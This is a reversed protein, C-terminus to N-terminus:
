RGFASEGTVAQGVVLLHIDNTGEYTYVTELNAMHRMVPYENMIGNAGLIDRSLRATELAIKVNNMKAMSIQAPQITGAEKLKGLRWALLQAKTLETSMWALKSQVLQRRAIPEGFAIRTKAFDVATSFCHEAAGLVGWAIGFRAQSLCGLASKLGETKELMADAPLKVDEFVLEATDSARFSHKGKIEQQTFGPTGREVLFGRISKSDDGTKAWVVAVDAKTGNTIWRKHGNLVWGGDVKRAHTRMAAPDSGADPETLGFCGVLEGKAMKPLWKNKQEESGWKWIPFMVLSGQVSCFSRVGSDGRELELMAVGYANPGMEACGYGTLTSGLLGLEGFTPILENPFTGAEYHSEIVPLVEADVFRRVHEAVTREEDTLLNRVDYFDTPQIAM